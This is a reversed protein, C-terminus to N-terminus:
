KTVTLGTSVVDGPELGSIIEAYELSQIGIEVIRLRLEGNEMVFVAYKDGAKHLAEVPILIANEARGGIVDVSASSGLPLNFSTTGEDLQVIARVVLTSNASYLGPDVQVVKGTFTTDPLIDFTVAVEYDTNINGWDSEDLFVELTPQSLDAITVSASGSNASDGISLDLSIVTGAIPATLKTNDLEQQASLLNAKTKVLETLSSSSYGAPVEGGTIATLYIRAEELTAKALDYTAQAVGIETETPPYVKTYREGTEEDIYYVPRQKGTRPNTRTESFNEQLYTEYNNEAEELYFRDRDVADQAEQLKRTAEESPNASAEAQAATLTKEDEELREQWIQVEPSILYQLDRRTTFANYEAEAVAAKATAIAAPSTLEDLARQAQQYAAQASDSDLEALFQGEEVKDGVNVYIKAVKGSTKFGFSAQASATMTGSGSAYLVLDGQRVTATQLESASDVTQAAPRTARYAYFGGVIAALLILNLLIPITRKRKFIDAFTQRSRM